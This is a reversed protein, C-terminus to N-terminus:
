GAEAKEAQAQDAQAQRGGTLFLRAREIEEYQERIHRLDDFTGRSVAQGGKVVNAINIAAQLWRQRLDRSADDLLRAAENQSLRAQQAADPQSPATKDAM